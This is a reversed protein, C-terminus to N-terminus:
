SKVEPILSSIPYVKSKILEVVDSVKMGSIDNDTLVVLGAVISIACIFPLVRKSASMITYDFREDLNWKGILSLMLRAINVLEDLYLSYGLIEDPSQKVLPRFYDMFVIVMNRGHIECCDWPEIEDNRKAGYIFCVGCNKYLEMLETRYCSGKIFTYGSYELLPLVDLRDISEYQDEIKDSANKSVKELNKLEHRIISSLEVIAHSMMLM